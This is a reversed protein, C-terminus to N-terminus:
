ANPLVVLFRETTQAVVLDPRIDAVLNFDVQPSWVFRYESFQRAFWWSLDHPNRGREFFSNGFVLVSRGDPANRNRWHATIGIHENGNQAGTEQILVLDDLPTLSSESPRFMEEGMILGFKQALDGPQYGASVWKVDEDVTGGFNVFVHRAVVSAGQASLHSDLKRFPFVASRLLKLTPIYTSGLNVLLSQLLDYAPTADITAGPSLHTLVTSKEPLIIQSFEIGAADLKRKREKILDFWGHARRVVEDSGPHETYQGHLGNSGGHIFLHDGHGVIAYSCASRQGVRLSFTSFADSPLFVPWALDGGAALPTIRRRFDAFLPLKVPPDGASVTILSGLLDVAEITMPLDIRFGCQANASRALMAVTSAVPKGAVSAVVPLCAEPLSPDAAWGHITSPPVFGDIMGLISM